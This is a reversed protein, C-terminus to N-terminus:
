WLRRALEKFAVESEKGPIIEKGSGVLRYCLVTQLELPLQTAISFYRAALSPTTTSNIQLLGDSVFVVLAFMEAALEDLLGLEVRVAHRAKVPNEKFRELLTAVETKGEVKAVRIADTQHDGPKGLVIERGSAIWRKIVELHGFHAARWLPTFGDVTPENVMVRSDKLMECVSSPYGCCAWYFPTSGNKNKVNVDIGPHALLLPIVPSSHNGFCARHLLNSNEGDVVMNVNFDPDQRILAALKKADGSEVAAFM